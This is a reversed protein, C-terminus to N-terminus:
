LNYRGNATLLLVHDHLLEFDLVPEQRGENIITERQGNIRVEEIAISKSRLFITDPMLDSNNRERTLYGPATFVLSKPAADTLPVTFRGFRDTVAHITTGKVIVLCNQVATGNEADRVIGRAVQGFTQLVSAILILSLLRRM